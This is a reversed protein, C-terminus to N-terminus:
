KFEFQNFGQVNKVQLPKEKLGAQLTAPIGKANQSTSLAAQALPKAPVNNFVRATQQQQNFGAGQFAMPFLQNKQVKLLSKVPVQAQLTKPLIPNLLDVSDKWLTEWDDFAEEMAEQWETLSFWHPQRYGAWFRPAKLCSPSLSKKSGSYRLEPLAAVQYGMLLDFPLAEGANLHKAMERLLHLQVDLYFAEQSIALEDAYFYWLAQYAVQVSEDREAEPTNNGEKWPWRKLARECDLEDDLVQEILQGAL